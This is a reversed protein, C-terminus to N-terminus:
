GEFEPLLSSAMISNIRQTPPRSGLPLTSRSPMGAGEQRVPTAQVSFDQNGIRTPSVSMVAFSPSRCSSRSRTEVAQIALKIFLPYLKQTSIRNTTDTALIRNTTHTAVSPDSKPDSGDVVLNEFDNLVDVQKASYNGLWIRADVQEKFDVIKDVQEDSQISCGKFNEVM